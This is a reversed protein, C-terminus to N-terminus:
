YLLGIQEKLTAYLQTLFTEADPIELAEAISRDLERRPENGLQDPIPPLEVTRMADLAGCIKGTAEAGLTRPNICPIEELDHIKIRGWDGAIERRSQLFLAKDGILDVEKFQDDDKDHYFTSPFVSWGRSELLEMMEVELPFGSKEIADAVRKNEDWM